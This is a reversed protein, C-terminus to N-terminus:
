AHHPLQSAVTQRFPDAAPGEFSLAVGGHPGQHATVRVHENQFQALAGPPAAVQGLGIAALSAAIAGHDVHPQVLLPGVAPPMGPTAPAMAPAMADPESVPAAREGFMALLEERRKGRAVFLFYSGIFFALSLVVLPVGALWEEEALAVIGGILGPVCAFRMWAVLVSKFSMPLPVGHYGDDTKSFVVTSQLPILPVWYIHFFKTAVHVGTDDLQDVKGFLRTGYYVIM